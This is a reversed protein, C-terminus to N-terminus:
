LLGDLYTKSTGMYGDDLTFVELSLTGDMMSEVYDFDLDSAVDFAEEYEMGTQTVYGTKENM